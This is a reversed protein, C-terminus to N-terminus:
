FTLYKLKRIVASDATPGDTYGSQKEDHQLAGTGHNHRQAAQPHRDSQSGEYAWTTKVTGSCSAIQAM